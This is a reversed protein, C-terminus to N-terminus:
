NLLPRQSFGTVVASVDKEVLIGRGKGSDGGAQDM